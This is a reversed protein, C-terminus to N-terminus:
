RFKLTVYSKAIRWLGFNTTLIGKPKGTTGSSFLLIPTHKKIDTVKFPQFSVTCDDKVLSNYDIFSPDYNQANLRDRICM